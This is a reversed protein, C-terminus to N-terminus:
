QKLRSCDVVTEGRYCRNKDQGCAVCTLSKFTMPDAGELIKGSYTYVYNADKGFFANPVEFTKPDAGELVKGNGSYVHNADKAFWTNLIVFSNIDIDSLKKGRKYVCKSDRQWGGEVLYFTSLDCAGVAWNGIYIDNQDKGWGWQGELLVFSKPDAKEVPRHTHYVRRSDKAYNESLATFSNPEAGDIKVYTYYANRKDKAYGKRNLIVFTSPDIDPISHEQHGHGEDWSVYVYSGGKSRYGTDCGTLAAVFLLLASYRLLPKM